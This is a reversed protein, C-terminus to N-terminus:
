KVLLYNQDKNELKLITGIYTDKETRKLLKVAKTKQSLIENIKEYDGDFYYANIRSVLLQVEEGYEGYKEKYQSTRKGLYKNCFVEFSYDQIDGVAIRSYEMCNDYVDISSMRNGYDLLSGQAIDFVGDRGEISQIHMHGSLHLKVGYEKYLSSLLEANYMVYNDVFLPNHEALNHHSFGIVTIGKDQAEKLWPCLWEITEEWIVGGITNLGAEENYECLTTDLMVAWVKDNIEYIYSHSEEDYCLADTYGYDAYLKCFEAGDVTREAYPTDNYYSRCGDINFDHNGPVVLVTIDKDIRELFSIFSKHSHEEGNFSLDGTFILADPNAENVQEVLAEMLYYDYEQVRGDATMAKKVYKQNDPSFLDESLLHTDSVVFVTALKEGKEFPEETKAGCATFCLCLIISLILSLLKKM